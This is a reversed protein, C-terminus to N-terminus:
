LSFQIRSYCKVSPQCMLTLVMTQEDPALATGPVDFKSLFYKNFIFTYNNQNARLNPLIKGMMLRCFQSFQLRWRTFMVLDDEFTTYGDEQRWCSKEWVLLVLVWGM